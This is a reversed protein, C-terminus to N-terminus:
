RSPPPSKNSFNLTKGGLTKDSSSTETNEFTKHCYNTYYNKINVCALPTFRELCVKEMSQIQGLCEGLSYVKTKDM